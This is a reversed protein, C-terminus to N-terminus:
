ILNVFLVMSLVITDFCVCCTVQVLEVLQADAAATWLQSDIMACRKLEQIITTVSESFQPTGLITGLPHLGPLGSVAVQSLSAQSFSGPSLFKITIYKARCPRPLKAVSTLSVTSLRFFAVPEFPEPAWVSVMSERGPGGGGGAGSATMQSAAASAPVLKDRSTGQRAIFAKFHPESFADTWTLAEFDPRTVSAFVLGEINGNAAQAKLTISHLFAPEVASGGAIQLCLCGEGNIVVSGSNDEACWRIVVFLTM